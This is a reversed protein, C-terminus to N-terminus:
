AKPDKLFKRRSELLRASPFPDGHAPYIRGAGADVIKKWSSFVDSINEIFIPRYEIGTFNMFNMALDGVFATGDDLLVSISDATHGPTYLIRGNVGIRRLVLNDDGNVILDRGGATVPPFTFGGHFLEFVKFVYKVRANVPRMTNESEGKELPALSKRHTIIAAATKARLEAAFGAHDDHHHTLLIYRIKEVPIGTKKIARIFKKYDDKYGTDILLYGGNCPVLYNKTIGLDIRQFNAKERGATGAPNNGCSVAAATCLLVPLILRLFVISHSYSNKRSGENEM